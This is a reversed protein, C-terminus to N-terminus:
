VDGRVALPNWTRKIFDSKLWQERVQPSHSCIRRFQCGAFKDCSTENMPWYNDKAYQEAQKVLVGFGKYWEELQAESRYVPRREFRSFTMAVQIGDVILGHAPLAYVVKTAITYITFQNHPTFQAFWREDLQYKSTKVDCVFTQSGLEGIRDIHGALLFREGTGAFYDTNFSFSLEVAPRGDPFVVTHIPDDKYEEFYWVVTRILTERNKHKDESAWPRNLDKNWTSCMIHRLAEVVAADHPASRARAKDYTEKAEHMLIGFHLHVNRIRSEYGEIIAYQYLRPCTKLLGSSTSDWALQLNPQVKSFASNTEFTQLAATGNLFQLKTM